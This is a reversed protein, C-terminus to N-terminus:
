VTFEMFSDYELYYNLAKVFSDILVKKQQLINLLVQNIADPSIAIGMGNDIVGQPYIEELTDEDVDVPTSIICKSEMNLVDDNTYLCWNADCLVAGTGGEFYLQKREEFFDNLTIICDKKM